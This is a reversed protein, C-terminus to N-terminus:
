ETPYTLGILQLNDDFQPNLGFDELASTLERDPQDFGQTVFAEIRAADAERMGLARATAMYTELNYAGDGAEARELMANWFDFLTHDPLAADTMLAIFEGCAYHARMQGRQTATRLPGAALAEACTSYANAFSYRLYAIAPRDLGAMIRNAMANAAGEHIWSDQPSDLHPGRVNQFLHVSEHAFFWLLYDHVFDDPERLREGSSQIVLQRGLVGGKNSFGPNDYGEFAFLLTAKDDLGYGWGRELESFLSALDEPFRARIWDPTAPDILGVYNDSASIEGDGIYIFGGGGRSIEVAEGEVREGRVIMPTPSLVRVGLVPQVGEFRNIDGELAAVAEVSGGPLLEFQGTFLMLSGDSFRIYDSYGEYRLDPRATVRFRAEQTPTDFVLTDFGAIRELRVGESTPHWAERRYDTESRSFFMVNQPTEFVYRVDFEGGGLDTVHTSVSSDAILDAPRASVTEARAAGPANAPNQCGALATAILLAPVCSRSLM